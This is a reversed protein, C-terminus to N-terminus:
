FFQGVAHPVSGGCSKGFNMAATRHSKRCGVDYAAAFSRWPAAFGSPRNFPMYHRARAFVRYAKRDM